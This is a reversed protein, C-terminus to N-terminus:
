VVVWSEIDTEWQMSHTDGSHSLSHVVYDGDLSPNVRSKVAVLGGPKVWPNLIASISVGTKVQFAGALMPEIRLLTGNDTTFVPKIGTVLPVGDTTAYFVKNEIRWSFGYVRGLRDLAENVPGYSCYGQPGVQLSPDIAINKVDVAVGPIHEALAQVIEKISAGSTFVLSVITQAMGLFGANTMLCTVIDAGERKNVVALLSGTHLLALDTNYWGAYISVQLGSKQLRSRQEPSINYIQILTPTATSIVHSYVYFKIRFGTQSGDGVFQLGLAEDGGGRWEELPGIVVRVIRLYPLQDSM